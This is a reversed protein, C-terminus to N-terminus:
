ASYEELLRQFEPHERLPDWTPDLKLVQTTLPGPTALLHELLEIAAETNGVTAHIRALDAVRWPGILADEEIPVAEVARKGARVAEANEGLGALVRGLPAHLRHHDPDEALKDELLTRAQQYYERAIEQDGLGEHALARYLDAPVIAGMWYQHTWSATELHDLMAQYDRKLKHLRVQARVLEPADAIGPVRAARELVARATNTDGTRWYTRALDTHFRAERAPSLEVAKELDVRADTYNRLGFHTNALQFRRSASRPDLRVAESHNDLAAEWRGQRRQIFGLLMLGSDDGPMAERAITLAQLAREYDRHGWYHYWALQLHAEPLDPDLELARDIAARAQALREDSHDYDYYYLWLHANGIRAHAHAFDPDRAVAEEYMWLALRHDEEHRGRGMHENGRLFYEYADLNQTYETRLSEREGELLTADMAEVVREAIEAQLRFVEALPEEYGDAWLPTADAAQVLQPTIRVTSGGDPEHAWRVTGDLVYDVGLEAAIESVNKDSDRYEMVSSRAIVGLEEVHVLRQIIEDTIGDAFYEDEARGLNEFPLVALVPQEPADDPTSYLFYSGIVALVALAAIGPSILRALPSQAASELQKSGGPVSASSKGGGTQHLQYVEVPEHVGKLSKRGLATAKLDTQNRVQRWVDRTLCIGGDPALQEIRSAINVGSGYVEEGQIVLDGIHVGIRLAFDKEAEQIAVACRLATVGSAFMLLQGDGLEKLVRGGFEEVLSHILKRQAQIVARARAEDAEMIETFGVLDTFVIAALQRTESHETM